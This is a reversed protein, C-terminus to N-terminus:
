GSFGSAILLVGAVLALILLVLGANWSGKWSYNKEPM